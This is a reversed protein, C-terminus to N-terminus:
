EGGAPPAPPVRYIVVDGSQFVAQLADFKAIATAPYAESYGSGVFVYTVGYKRLIAVAEELSDTTYVRDVDERRTALSDGDRGWQQEHGGWGLITPVGSLASIL